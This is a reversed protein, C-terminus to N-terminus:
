HWLDGRERRAARGEVEECELRGIKEEEERKETLQRRGGGRVDRRQSGPSVESVGCVVNCRCLPPSAVFSEDM